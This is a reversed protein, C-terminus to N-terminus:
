ESVAICFPFMDKILDNLVPELADAIAGKILDGFAGEVADVLPDMFKNFMGLGKIEVDIDSYMLTLDNIKMETYCSQPVGLQATYSIKGKGIVGEATAKGSISASQNIGGCGATIKGSVKASLKSNLVVAMDITGKVTPYQSDDRTVYKMETIVLSSLGTMDKISYSAKASATCIGLNIKGLTKKGSYVDKWPDLNNNKIYQPIGQNLVPVLAILMSDLIKITDM